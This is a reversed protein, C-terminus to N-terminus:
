RFAAEWTDAGCIGDQKLGKKKQIAIVAAKTNKGYDNDAPIGLLAQLVGVYNNKNGSQLTPLSVTIKNATTLEQKTPSNSSNNSSSGFTSRYEESQGYWFSKSVRTDIHVFYGDAQTEYLGIGKVGISEAFKAVEKPAVGSVVIDAADGKTHRSGTAGGVRQNHKLCRYGSTITIPKGFHDRIAQLYIVLQPNIITAKCCGDNGKCDFETSIFNNSLKVPKDKTYTAM